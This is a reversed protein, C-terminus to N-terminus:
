SKPRAFGAALPLVDYRFGNGGRARVPDGDLLADVAQADDAEIVSMGWGGAPDAVPGFVVVDGEALKGLWYQVHDNMMARKDDSMDEAFSPRPPTLRCLYYPM